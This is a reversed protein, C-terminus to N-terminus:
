ACNGSFSQEVLDCIIHYALQHIEQSRATSNKACFCIDAIKELRSDVHVEVAPKGITYKKLGKTYGQFSRLARALGEVSWLDPRNTDKMEISVIGETKNYLKVEGKVFALLEDLKAIDGDLKLGLLRELESYDVDITPM